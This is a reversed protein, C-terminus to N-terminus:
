DNGGRWNTFAEEIDDETYVKNVTIDLVERVGPNRRDPKPSGTIVPVSIGSTKLLKFYNNQLLITKIDKLLSCYNYITPPTNSSYNDFYYDISDVIFQHIDSGTVPLVGEGKIGSIHISDRDLLNTLDPDRQISEYLWTYTVPTKADSVVDMKELRQEFYLALSWVYEDAGAPCADKDYFKRDGNSYGNRTEGPKYGSRLKSEKGL